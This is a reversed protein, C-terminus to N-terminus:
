DYKKASQYRFGQNNKSFGIKVNIPANSTNQIVLKEFDAAHLTIEEKAKVTLNEQVKNSKKEIILCKLEVESKNDLLVRYPKENFEGIVMEEKAAIPYEVAVERLKESARNFPLKIQCSSFIMALAM